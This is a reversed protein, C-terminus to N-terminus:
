EPGAPALVVRFGMTSEAELFGASTRRFASRCDKGRKSYAGGRAVMYVAIKNNLYNTVSGGPYPEPESGLFGDLCWEEVNGHMDYLGFGNPQYKGVPTPLNFSVNSSVPIGSPYPYNGNFTVQVGLLGDARISDGFNFVSTTGARCAYEWEAETPLRYAWGAPIRGAALDSATRLACYNTADGWRVARVPWVLYDPFGSDDKPTSGMVEIYDVNRVEYRGMLFGRTITVTTQPGEYAARELENSPSGMVFTGPPIWVLNTDALGVTVSRYFRQAGNATTDTYYTPDQNIRVLALPTWSSPQTSTSYQVEQVSGPVGRIEVTPTWKLDLVAQGHALGCGLTLLVLSIGWAQRGGGLRTCIETRHIHM